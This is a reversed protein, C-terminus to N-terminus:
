GLEPIGSLQPCVPGLHGERHPCDEGVLLKAVSTLVAVTGIGFRGLAQAAQMQVQHM